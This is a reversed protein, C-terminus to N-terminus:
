DAASLEEILGKGPGEGRVLTVAESAVRRLEYDIMTDQNMREAQDRHMVYERELRILLLRNLNALRDHFEDLRASLGDGLGLEYKRAATADLLETNFYEFYIYSAPIPTGEERHTKALRLNKEMTPLLGEHAQEAPSPEEDPEEGTLLQLNREVNSRLAKKLQGKQRTRETERARANLWRVLYVILIAGGVGVLTTILSRWFDLDFFADSVVAEHM